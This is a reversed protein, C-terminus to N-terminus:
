AFGFAHVKVEAGEIDVGVHVNLDLLKKLPSMYRNKMLFKFQYFFPRNNGKRCFAM